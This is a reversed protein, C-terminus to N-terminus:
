LKVIEMNVRKFYPVFRIHSAKDIKISIIGVELNLVSRKMSLAIKTPFVM